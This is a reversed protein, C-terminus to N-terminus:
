TSSGDVVDTWGFGAANLTRGIRAFTERAQARADGATEPTNGLMGSLYLRNGVRM